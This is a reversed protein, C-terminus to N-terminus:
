RQFFGRASCSALQCSRCVTIFLESGERTRRYGLRESFYRITTGGGRKVLIELFLLRTVLKCIVRLESNSFSLVVHNM